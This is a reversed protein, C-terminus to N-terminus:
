LFKPLPGYVISFHIVDNISSGMLLKLNFFKRFNPRSEEELKPKKSEPEEDYSCSIFSLPDIEPTIEESKLDEESYFSCKLNIVSIQEFISHSLNEQHTNNILNTFKYL